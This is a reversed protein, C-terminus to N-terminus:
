RKKSKGSNKAKRKKLRELEATLSEIEHRLEETEYRRGLWGCFCILMLILTVIGIVLDNDSM